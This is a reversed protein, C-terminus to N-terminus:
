WAGPCNNRGVVVLEDLKEKINTEDVGDFAKIIATIADQADQANIDGVNQLMATYEALATSTQPDFGLRAYTTAGGIIDTVSSAVRNASEFATDSFKKMEADTAGTVIQMQTLAKDLEMSAQVMERMARVVLSVVRQLGIYHGVIGKLKDGLTNVREGNENLTKTHSKVSRDVANVGSKFKQFDRDNQYEKWLRELEERQESIGEYADRNIAKNSTQARAYRKLADEANFVARNYLEQAGNAQRTAAATDETIKVNQSQEGQANTVTKITGTLISNATAQRRTETEVERGSEYVQKSKRVLEDYAQVTREAQQVDGAGPSGGPNETPNNGPNSPANNPTSPIQKVLDVIEQLQKKLDETHLNITSLDFTEEIQTRIGKLVDGIDVSLTKFKDLSDTAAATSADTAPAGAPTLADKLSAEVEKRRVQYEELAASARDFSSTDIPTQARELIEGYIRRYEGLVAIVKRVASVTNAAGLDGLYADTGKYKSSLELFQSVQGSLAQTLSSGSLGAIAGQMEDVMRILAEAEQKYLRLEEVDTKNGGFSATITFQKNNIERVLSVIETLQDVIKNLSDFNSADVLQIGKGGEGLTKRLEDAEHKIDEFNGSFKIKVPELQGLVSELGTKVEDVTPSVDVGFILEIDVAITRM